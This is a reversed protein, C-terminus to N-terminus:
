GKVRSSLPAAIGNWCGTPFGAAQPGATVVAKRHARQTPTLKSPRGGRRRVQLGAVGAVLFAHLWGYVTATGVGMSQAITEVAESRGIALLASARKVVPLDRARYARALVGQLQKSTEGTIRISM